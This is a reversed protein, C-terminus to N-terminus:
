GSDDNLIMGAQKLLMNLKRLSNMETAAEGFLVSSGGPEGSKETGHFHLSTM